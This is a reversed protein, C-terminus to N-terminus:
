ILVKGMKPFGKGLIPFTWEWKQSFTPVKGMKPFPESTLFSSKGMKPFPAKGMKPFRKRSGMGMKPFIM